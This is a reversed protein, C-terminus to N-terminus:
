NKLSQWSTRTLVSSRFVRKAYVCNAMEAYKKTQISSESLFKESEDKSLERPAHSRLIMEPLVPSWRSMSHQGALTEDALKKELLTFEAHEGPALEGRFAEGIVVGDRAIVAGVKPSIKDAESNCKRALDIARLM